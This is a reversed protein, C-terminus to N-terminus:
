RENEPSQSELPQISSLWTEFRGQIGDINLKINRTFVFTAMQKKVRAQGALEFDYPNLITRLSAEQKDLTMGNNVDFSSIQLIVGKPSSPLNHLIHEMDEPYIIQLDTNRRYGDPMKKTKPWTNPLRRRADYKMPDMEIYICDSDAGNQWLTPNQLSHRFDGQFSVRHLFFKSLLDDSLWGEIEEFNRADYECLSILIPKSEWLKTMFVASSPYPVGAENSLAKWAIEYPSSVAHAKLRRCAARFIQRCRLSESKKEPTSWPAMSHTTIFHLKCDKDSIAAIVEALTWHQMLNGRNGRCLGM